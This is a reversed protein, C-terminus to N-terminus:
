FMVGESRNAIKKNLGVIFEEIEKKRDGTEEDLLCHIDIDSLQEGERRPGYASSGTLAILKIKERTDNSVKNLVKPIDQQVKAMIESFRHSREEGKLFSGSFEEWLQKDLEDTVPPVLTSRGIKRENDFQYKRVHHFRRYAKWLDYELRRIEKPVTELWFALRKKEFDVAEGEANVYPNTELKFAM